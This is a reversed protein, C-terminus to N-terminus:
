YIADDKFQQNFKMLFTAICNQFRLIDEIKSAMEEMNETVVKLRDDIEEANEFTKNIVHLKEVSEEKVKLIGQEPAVAHSDFVKMETVFNIM